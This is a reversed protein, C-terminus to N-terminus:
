FDERASGLIRFNYTVMFIPRAFITMQYGKIEGGENKFYISYPNKRGFVNYVTATLSSHNLKSERLNGNLTMSLDLRIYDPIRFQNKDSYYIRTTNNFNYFAAPYTIPRGTSYAFNTTVNLRRALKSNVIVKFDHPKDFNAPFYVGGNIKEAEYPGDFKWLTRSYTYSIWGTLMGAKKNIMLETGYAKGTGNIIETELNENMLLVAGGKYDIINSLKKYYAEISTEVGKRGINYFFGASLQDGRQPRFYRDSLKWIDTPSMSTTNSIMHLYQYVRQIGTKFSFNNTILIRSSIRFELGPYSKISEGKGYNLTDTINEVRRPNNEDYQYETKPGFLTYVTGRLGGSVSIAPTIEFEDSLYVSPELANEKEIRTSTIRSYDGFPERTGPLLSYYIANIGFEIKHKNGPFYLFDSRFISQNLNYHLSSFSSSDRNDNLNYSYSSVIAYSQLSLKPNFTHKWKLTSALNGYDFDNEQYYDFRDNSYYGSVSISNKEDIKFDLLGQIDYFGATSNQLKKDDLVGLVWDSYTTRAGIVFSSKNKKLPGEVLLRGTVPSIGGSVKIKEYNGTVPVIEMVSSIRGGYKAPIGSKYLTVDSILDANLVSFFGFFHSTNIIPAYDLLVLNQDTSGGRVNYGTSAEGVSQVGPLLMSSKIIDVEGFGMPIQKLMKSDIKEIGIRVNKVKNERNAYVSVEDLQRINKVMVVDLSGNSFVIVNRRTTQMGMTRYEIQFQGRPLTISYYGASNTMVGAKLQGVYVIAGPIPEGDSIDYVNGSLIANGESNLSSPKGIRFIRYEDNILKAEDEQVPSLYGSTDSKSYNNRLYELYEKQFTTKIKFGKSLIVKNDETIIFNLGEKRLVKDLMENFPLGESDVSILLSDVWKDTYYIKVPVLKELTDALERFLIQNFQIALNSNQGYGQVLTVSILLTFLLIKTLKNLRNKLVTM